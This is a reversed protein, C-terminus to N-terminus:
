RFWDYPDGCGLPNPKFLLHPTNVSQGPKLRFSDSLAFAFSDSSQASVASYLGGFSPAEIVRVAIDDTIEQQM